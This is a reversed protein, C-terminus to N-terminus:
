AASGVLEREQGAEDGEAQKLAPQAGKVGIEIQRPKREEPMPIRITLVGNDLSAEIADPDLGKPVRLLREFRGFGRERRQWVRGDDDKGTDPLTREGRVALVDNELEISLDDVTMGPVDVTVTVEDDTGVVDAPPVFSRVATGNPAFLRDMERSLEFLPALPDYLTTM